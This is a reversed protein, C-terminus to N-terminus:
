PMLKAFNLYPCTKPGLNLDREPSMHFHYNHAFYQMDKEDQPDCSEGRVRRDGTPCKRVQPWNTRQGGFKAAHMM